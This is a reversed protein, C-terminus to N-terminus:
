LNAKKQEGCPTLHVSIDCKDASASGTAIFQRFSSSLTVRKDALGVEVLFFDLIM